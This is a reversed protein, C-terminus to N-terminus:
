SVEQLAAWARVGPDTPHLEPNGRLSRRPASGQHLRKGQRHVLLERGPSDETIWRCSGLLWKELFPELVAEMPLEVIHGSASVSPLLKGPTIRAFPSEDDTKKEMAGAARFLALGEVSGGMLTKGFNGAIRHAWIVVPEKFFGKAPHDRGDGGEKGGPLSGEDLDIM